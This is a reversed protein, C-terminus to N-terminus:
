RTKWFTIGSALLGGLIVIDPRERAFAMFDQRTGLVYLGCIFLVLGYGLALCGISRGITSEQIKRMFTEKPAPKSEIAVTIGRIRLQELRKNMITIDELSIPKLAESFTEALSRLVTVMKEIDKQQTIRPLIITRLNERLQNLPKVFERKFLNSRPERHYFYSLHNIAGKVNNKAKALYFQSERDKKSCLELNESAKYLDAFVSREITESAWSRTIMYFISSLTVMFAVFFWAGFLWKPSYYYIIAGFLIFFVLLALWCIFVKRRQTQRGKFARYVKKM